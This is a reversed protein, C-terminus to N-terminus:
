HHFAATTTAVTTARKTLPSTEYGQMAVKGVGDDYERSWFSANAKAEVSAM